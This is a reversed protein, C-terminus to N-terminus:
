INGRKGLRKMLYIAGAATILLLGLATYLVTGAGGTRPLHYGDTNMVQVGPIGDEVPLIAQAMSQAAGNGQIDVGDLKLLFHVPKGLLQYGAPAKTEVLYFEGPALSRVTIVGDQDTILPTENVKIGYINDAGPIPGANPSGQNAARYLDFEAGPLLKNQNMLDTKRIILGNGAIQIVPHNYLEKYSEGDAVYRVEASQNSHFGPKKSSTDNAYRSNEYDTYADGKVDRYGDLGNRLNDAYEDYATQTTKVNFSLMYTCDAQLEYDPNFVVQVTGTSADATGPTPTYTVNQVVSIKTGDDQTVRNGPLAAGITGQTGPGTGQWLSVVTGDAKRMTVLVDPQEGYWKVYQSLHDTIAAHSVPKGYMISHFANEIADTDNAVFYHESSTAIKKLSDAMLPSSTDKTGGVGLSYFVTDDHIKHLFEAYDLTPQKAYNGSNSTGTGFRGQYYESDFAGSQNYNGPTFYFRTSGSPQYSFRGYVDKSIGSTNPTLYYYTPYGDSIFIVYRHADPRKSKSEDLLNGAKRLAQMINTGSGSSSSVGQEKLIDKLLPKLDNTELTQYNRSWGTRCWADEAGSSYLKGNSKLGDEGIASQWSGSYGVVSVNNRPDSDLVKKTLWKANDVVVKARTDGGMDKEQMSNSNDLVLVVDAPSGIMGAKVNLYLRYLDTLNATSDDLTTDPNNQADRLADITKNHELGMKDPIIAEKTNTIAYDINLVEKEQREYVTFKSASRTSTTTSAQANSPASSIYYSYSGSKALLRSSSDLYFTRNSYQTDSPRAACVKNNYLALDMNSDVNTLKFGSGNATAMWEGRAGLQDNVTYTTLNSGSGAYGLAKGSSNYVIRYTEGNTFGSVKQWTVVHEMEETRNVTAEYGMVSDEEVTYAIQEGDKDSPLDNWTYKWANSNSLTVAPEIRTGNKVLWVKLSQPHNGNDGAWNKAISVNTTQGNKRNIIPFAGNEPPAEGNLTAGSEAVQVNWPGAPLTFGNAAKTEFLLYNGLPLNNFTIEGSGGSTQTQIPATNKKEGNEDAGYLAFTVGSLTNGKTDTKKLILKGTKESAYTNTVMVDATDPSKFPLKYLAGNEQIVTDAIVAGNHTADLEVQGSPVLITGANESSWTVTGTYPKGNAVLNWLLRSEWDGGSGNVGIGHLNLSVTGAVKSCDINVLLYQDENLPFGDNGITNGADPNGCLQEGLDSLDLTGTAPVTLNLVKIGPATDTDPKINGDSDCTPLYNTKAAAMQLSLAKLREFDSTWINKRSASYVAGEIGAELQVTKGNAKIYWSGNGDARGCEYTDSVYLVGGRLNLTDGLQAFNIFQEVYNDESGGSVSENGNYSVTFGNGEEQEMLPKGNPGDLEFVYYKQDAALGTVSATGAGTVQAQKEPIGVPAGNVMQSASYVGFYFTQDKGGSGELQNQVELAFEAAAGYVKQSNGLQFNNATLNQVAINGEMDGRGTMQNAFVAFQNADGLGTTIQELTLTGDAAALVVSYISFHDTSMVVSGDEKMWSEMDTASEANEDVHYVKARTSGAEAEMLDSFTVIVPKLPEVEKNDLLLKIDFLRREIPQMEDAEMARDLADLAGPTPAKSEEGQMPLEEVSLLLNGAPFADETGTMTVTVGSNTVATLTREELTEKWNLELAAANRSAIHLAREYNDAMACHFQLFQDAEDEAPFEERGTDNDDLPVDSSLNKDKGETFDETGADEAPAESSVTSSNEDEPTYTEESDSSTAEESPATEEDWEAEPSADEPEQTSASDDIHDKGKENEEPDVTLVDELLEDDLAYAPQFISAFLGKQSEKQSADDVEAQEPQSEEQSSNGVDQIKDEGTAEAPTEPMEGLPVDGEEIETHNPEIGSGSECALTFATIQGPELAFWYNTEGEAQRDRNLILVSGDETEIECADQEDFEYQGSLGAGNSLTHLVFIFPEKGEPAEATVHTEMTEGLVAVTQEAEIQPQTKAMSVAPLSLAGYVSAAIMVCALSLAVYAYRKKKHKKLYIGVRDMLESRM